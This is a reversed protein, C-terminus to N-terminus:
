RAERAQHLQERIRPLLFAAIARHGAATPHIGDLLLTDLDTRNRWASFLDAVPCDLERAVQIMGKRYQDVPENVDHTKYYGFDSYIYKKHLPNPTVLLVRSGAGRIRRVLEVLNQRYTELPIRPATRATPGADVWASDNLGAMVITLQPRYPTVDKHLRLLMDATTNGPVGANIIHLGPSEAQLDRELLAVFTQERSVDNKRIGYTVSDGLCVLTPEAAICLAVALITLCFTV